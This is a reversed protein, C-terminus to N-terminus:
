SSYESNFFIISLHKCFFFRKIKLFLYDPTHFHQSIIIISITKLKHEKPKLESKFAPELGPM